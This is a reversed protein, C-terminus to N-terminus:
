WSETRDEATLYLIREKVPEGTLEEWCEAYLDVQARYIALRREMEAPDAVEDTKYDAIVWGDPERFALDVVGEVVGPLLGDGGELEQPRAFPVESLLREAARARAFLRSRGVAEVLDVLEALEEPEGGDSPRGNELLAARCVRALTAGAAGRGAADLAQHVASGWDRGRGRGSLRVGEDKVLDSVPTTRYSPVARSARKATIEEIRRRVVAPDVDSEPRQPPAEIQVDL